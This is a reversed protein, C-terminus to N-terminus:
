YVKLEELKERIIIFGFYFKGGFYDVFRCDNDYIGFYVLCVECVWM